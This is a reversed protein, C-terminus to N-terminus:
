RPASRRYPNRRRAPSPRERCSPCLAIVRWDTARSLAGSMFGAQECADTMAASTTGSFAQKGSAMEYLAIRLSFLDTRADLPKGLAQEPSM